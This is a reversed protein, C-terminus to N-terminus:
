EKIKLYTVLEEYTGKTPYIEIHDFGEDQSGDPKQDSLELLGIKGASTEILEKLTILAIRRKSIYSQNIRIGRTDIESPSEFMSRVSIFSETSGCKYCIHDAQVIEYLRNEKLFKEFNDLIERADKYFDNINKM